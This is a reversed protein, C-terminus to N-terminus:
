NWPRKGPNWGTRLLKIKDPRGTRSPRALKSQNPNIKQRAGPPRKKPKQQEGTKEQTPANIESSLESGSARAAQRQEDAQGIGAARPCSAGPLRFFLVFFVPAFVIALLEKRSATRAPRHSTTQRKM